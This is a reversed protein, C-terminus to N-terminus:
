DGDNFFYELRERLPSQEGRYSEILMKKLLRNEHTAESASRLLCSGTEMLKKVKTNLTNFRKKLREIEKKHTDEM